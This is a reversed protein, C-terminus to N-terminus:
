GFMLWSPKFILLVGLVFMLIGGILNSYRSYKTSIGTMHMTIMAAFFVFLDDIMFFFIYLAIYLYYRTPNLNNLALVQTFVAPLGASCVLEVVNVAFALLIIGGLAIFFSKKHTIEKIKEFVRKRKEDGTVKCGGDKNVWFERLNYGGAGLAVLGILLRVWIVVGLLLFFNLWASMILFYVFASTIVFTTGLIWMRTKDEMGLLLSILFLLTWMACPNFGDLAGLVISLAPLSLEETKVVGLIPVKIEEPVQTGSKENRLNQNVLQEIKKGTTQEGQYGIVYEGDIVTFPVGPVNTNLEEAFDELLQQNEKNESIEYTKVELEPYKQQLGSLFEKEKACHPCGHAWFLHITLSDNEQGFSPISLLFLTSIFITFLLFFKKM